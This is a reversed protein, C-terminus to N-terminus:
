NNSKIIIEVGVISKKDKIVNYGDIYKEKKYGDLIKIITAHIKSKKSKWNSYLEPDYWLDSFAGQQNEQDYYIIDKCISKNKAKKLAGIRRILYWKLTTNEDTDTIEPAALLATPFQEIEGTQEAYSYLAPRKIFEYGAIIDITEEAGDEMKCKIGKKTRITKGNDPIVAHYVELPLLYSTKTVREGEEVHGGRKIYEDTLDITIDIHRLKNLSRTVSGIKQPSIRGKLNGTIMRAVMEPSFRGCGNLYLSYVADMVTADYQTINKSLQIDTDSKLAITVSANKAPMTILKLPEKADVIGSKTTIYKAVKSINSYEFEGKPLTVRPIIKDNGRKAMM